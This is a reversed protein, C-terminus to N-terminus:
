KKRAEMMADAFEYANSALTKVISGKIANAYEMNAALNGLVQAAFYDRLTMGENFRSQLHKSDFNERNENPKYSPFAPESFDKYEATHTNM